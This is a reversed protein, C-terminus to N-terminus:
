GLPLTWKLLKITSAALYKQSQPDLGVIRATEPCHKQLFAVRQAPNKLGNGLAPNEDAALSCRVEHIREALYRARSIAQEYERELREPDARDAAWLRRAAERLIGQERVPHEIASMATDETSAFM